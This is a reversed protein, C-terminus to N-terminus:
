LSLIKERVQRRTHLDLKELVNETHHRATHPSIFLQEAIERNTQGQALLLAVRTEQRTLDFRERLTEEPPWAPTLRELVVMYARGTKFLDSALLSGRLRYHATATQVSAIPKTSVLEPADRGTQVLTSLSHVVQMMGSLLREGEPDAALVQTLAATQHLVRGDVDVLLLPQDMADLIGLLGMRHAELRQGVAVGAEFATKILRFLMLRFLTIECEGFKRGHPNQILAQDADLLDKLYPTIAACWDTLCSRELPSLLM